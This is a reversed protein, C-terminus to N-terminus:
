IEKDGETTDKQCPQECGLQKQEKLNTFERMYNWIAGKYKQMTSFNHTKSSTNRSNKDVAKLDTWFTGTNAM